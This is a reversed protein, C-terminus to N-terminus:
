YVSTTSCALGSFLKPKEFGKALSENQIEQFFSSPLVALSMWAIAFSFNAAGLPIYKNKGICISRELSM